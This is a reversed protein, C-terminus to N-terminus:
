PGYFVARPRPFDAPLALLPITGKLSELWYSQQKDLTGSQFRDNQWAAFDKYQITLGPLDKGSYLMMLENILIECSFADAAIHHVDM